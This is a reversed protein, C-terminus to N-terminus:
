TPTSEQPQVPSPSYKYNSGYGYSHNVTGHIVVGLVNIRLSTLRRHVEEVFPLRSVDQFLSILVGDAHRAFLLPDSVPLIPSSDLIVFEYRERLVRFMEGPGISALHQPTDEAWRGAPFFDLGPISTPQIVSDIMAEGRLVECVGPANEAIGFRRFASPSRLDGDVLITREGTGAISVALHSALTTKGEGSVPSVIQIVRANSIGHGHLLMTRTTNMSENVLADWSPRGSQGYRKVVSRMQRPITGIVPLGLQTTVSESSEVRKRKLELLGIIACVFLISGFGGAASMMLKRKTEDVPVIYAKEMELVRPPADQELTLSTILSNVKEYVNEALKIRIRLPELDISQKDGSRIYAELDNAEGTLLKELQTSSQIEETLFKLHQELESKSKIQLNQQIEKRINVRLKEYNSKITELQASLRKTPLANEPDIAVERSKRLQSEIEAQKTLNEVVAADREVYTELVNDPLQISEPTKGRMASEEAKLRILDSRIKVIESKFIALQNVALEQRLEFQKDDLVGGREASLAQAQDRLTKLTSDAREAHKNLALLRENRFRKSRGHVESLYADYVSNVLIKAQEGDLYSLSIRLIEAGEPFDMQINKALWDLPELGEESISRIVPLKSVDEPRLAASLVLRSKILAIQTGRELPADPHQGIVTQPVAPIYLKASATPKPPPLQTWIIPATIAALILSLIAAIRWRRSLAKLLSLVFNGQGSAQSKSNLHPQNTPMRYRSSDSVQQGPNRKVASLDVLSSPRTLLEMEPTSNPKSGQSSSESM